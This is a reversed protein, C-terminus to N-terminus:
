PQLSVDVKAGEATLLVQNAELTLGMVKVEAKSTLSSESLIIEAGGLKLLIKGDSLRCSTESPLFKALLVNIDRSDLSIHSM